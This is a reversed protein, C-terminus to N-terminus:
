LGLKECVYRRLPCACRFNGDLPDAFVCNEPHEELCVVDCHTKKYKAKCM